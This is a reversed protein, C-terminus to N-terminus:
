VMYVMNLKSTIKEVVEKDLKNNHMVENAFRAFRENYRVMLTFMLKLRVLNDLSANLMWWPAINKYSNMMLISRIGDYVETEDWREPTDIYYKWMNQPINNLKMMRRMLMVENAFRAFEEKNTVTSMPKLRVLNDLSANLMWWPVISNYSNMMLISRIGDYVETEDWLEPADTYYKWMNQPIDSLPRWM